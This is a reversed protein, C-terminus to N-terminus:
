VDRLRFGEAMAKFRKVGHHFTIPGPPRYSAYGSWGGLRAIIWAAWALSDPPHPNKQKETKGQLTPCLVRLVELEDPEFVDGAKQENAGDRAQVLQMIQCAARTAIAALKLLREADEVQSAEIALGKTKMTRFLQEIHWRQGYWEVIRWAAAADDVQHSTLLRWHLPVNGAPADVERVDVARLTVSAPLGDDAVVDPRRLAVEGHRIELTMRRPRRGARERLEIERRGALPAVPWADTAGYLKGGGLLRRDRASRILLDHGEGPLWAWLQFIDAESDAVMTVRAAAALVEMAGLAAAHWRQSEKDALPRQRTPLKSLAAHGAGRTWITGGALGHCVGSEADVALVPHLQLGHVNGKGSAGLGRRRGPRTAFHLESCDQLALIHRGRVSGGVGDSWGEILAQTTVKGNALFRGFRVEDRRGCGLRRLSVSQLSVM